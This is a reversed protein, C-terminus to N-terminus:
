GKAKKAFYACWLVFEAVPMAGVQDLTKGLNDGLVLM